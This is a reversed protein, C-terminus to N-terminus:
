ENNVHRSHETHHLRYLQIDLLRYLTPKTWVSGSVSVGGESVSEVESM